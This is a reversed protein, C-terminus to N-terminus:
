PRFFTNPEADQNEVEVQTAQVINRIETQTAKSTYSKNLKNINIQLGLNNKIKKTYMAFKLKYDIKLIDRLLRQSIHTTYFKKFPVRRYFDMDVFTVNKFQNCTVKLKNNLKLENLVSNQPVEGVLINAKCKLNNLFCYLHSICEYPNRDNIGGLVIIYDNETLSNQLLDCHDIIKSLRAGPKFFSYVKYQSGLLEQMKKQLGRGQEDAMIIVKKEQHSKNELKIFGNDDFEQFHCVLYYYDGPESVFLAITIVIHCQILLQMTNTQPNLPNQRQAPGVLALRALRVRSLMELINSEMTPAALYQM